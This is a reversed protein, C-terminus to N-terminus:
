RSCPQVSERALCTKLAPQGGPSSEDKWVIICGPGAALVLATFLAILLRVRGIRHKM